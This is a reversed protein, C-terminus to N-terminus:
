ARYRKEGPLRCHITYDLDEIGMDPIQSICTTLQEIERRPLGPATIKGRTGYSPLSVAAQAEAIGINAGLYTKAVSSVLESHPSLKLATTIKDM